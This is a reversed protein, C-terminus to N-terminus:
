QGGRNLRRRFIQSPSLNHHRAVYSLSKSPEQTEEVIRKKEFPSWYRRREVSTVVHVKEENTSTM